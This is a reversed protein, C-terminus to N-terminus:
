AVITGSVSICGGRAREERCTCCVGSESIPKVMFFLVLVFGDETLKGPACEGKAIRTLPVLLTFGTGLILTSSPKDLENGWDKLNAEVVGESEAM